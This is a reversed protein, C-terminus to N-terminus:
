MRKKKQKIGRKSLANIEIFAMVNCKVGENSMVEKASGKMKARAVEWVEAVSKSGLLCKLKYEQELTEENWNFNPVLWSYKNKANNLM